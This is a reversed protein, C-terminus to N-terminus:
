SWDTSELQQVQEPEDFGPRVFARAKPILSELHARLEELTAVFPGVEALTARDVAILDRWAAISRDIGLLAVKCSGEHDPPFERDGNFAALGNLARFVKAAILSSFWSITAIPDNPDSSELSNADLWQQVGRRYAGARDVAEAFALPLPPDPAAAIQTVDIESLIDDLWVPTLRVDSTHPPADLLPKLDGAAIADLRAGDAFLRCRSTFSCRECWRDCYNYIGLIFGEDVEM